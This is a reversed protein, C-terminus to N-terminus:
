GLTGEQQHPNGHDHHQAEKPCSLHDSVVHGGGAGRGGRRHPQATRPQRVIGARAIERRRDNPRVPRGVDLTGTRGSVRGDVAEVHVRRDAGLWRGIGVEVDIGLLSRDGDSLGGAEGLDAPDIGRHVGLQGQRRDALPDAGLRGGNRVQAHERGPVVVEGMVVLASADDQDPM